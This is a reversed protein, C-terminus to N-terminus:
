EARKANRALQYFVDEMNKAKFQEKLAKPTDLAAIVGDVMISVRNCYEAEDM